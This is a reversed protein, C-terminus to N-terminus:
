ISVGQAIRSIFILLLKHSVQLLDMRGGGLGLRLIYQIIQRVLPALLVRQHNIGPLSVPRM